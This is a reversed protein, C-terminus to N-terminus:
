KKSKEKPLSINNGCVTCRYGVITSKGASQRPNHVRMKYGYKKDQFDHKKCYECYIIM